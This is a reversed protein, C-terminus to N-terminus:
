EPYKFYVYNNSIPQPHYYSEMNVAQKNIPNEYSVHNINFSSIIDLIKKTNNFRVIPKISADKSNYLYLANYIEKLAPLKRCAEDDRLGTYNMLNNNDIFIKVRNNIKQQVINNYDQLKFIRNLTTEKQTLFRPFINNYLSQLSNQINPGVQASQIRFINSYGNLIMYIDGSVNKTILVEFIRLEINNRYSNEIYKFEYNTDSIPVYTNGSKTAFSPNFSATLSTLTIRCKFYPETKTGLMYIYDNNNMVIPIKVIPEQNVLNNNNRANNLNVPMDDEINYGIKLTNNNTQYIVNTKIKIIVVGSGGHGGIIHHGRSAGGGGGTSFKGTSRSTSDTANGGGGKGGIGNNAGYHSSGGGGGAFWGNDGVNTGFISSLNRGIGGDGGKDQSTPTNGNAGAGGGGGGAREWGGPFIGNGGNNGQNIIGKGGNRNGTCDHSSAAAGGGSGGDSGNNNISDYGGSNFGGGGGYAIIPQGENIIMRTIGGKNAVTCVNMTTGGSGGGGVLIKINGRPIRFNELLVLGGAGGGGGSNQGGGGGGGVLLVDCIKDVDFTITYM